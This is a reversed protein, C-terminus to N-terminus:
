AKAPLLGRLTQALEGSQWVAIRHQAAFARAADSLEGLSIYLADQAESKDREAQLARLPEIGTSATKWRRACVLMRRGKREIEFDASGSRRQTQFGDRRLAQELTASFAPWAMARLAAVASAVNDASPAHRQRWAAMASIVAFPFGSFAGVFRYDAPLLVWALGGALLALAASIWWASRLLIAFLSRESMKFKM